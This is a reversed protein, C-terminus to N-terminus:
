RSAPVFADLSVSISKGGIWRDFWSADSITVKAHHPELTPFVKSRRLIEEYEGPNLDFNVGLGQWNATVSLKGRNEVKYYYKFEGTAKDEEFKSGFLTQYGPGSTAGTLWLDMPLWDVRDIIRRKIEKDGLMANPLRVARLRVPEGTLGAQIVDNIYDINWIKQEKGVSEGEFQVIVDAIQLGVLSAPGDKLIRSVYITGNIEDKNLEVGIGVYYRSLKQHRARSYLVWGTFVLVSLLAFIGFKLTKRSM